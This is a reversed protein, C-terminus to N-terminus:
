LARARILKTKISAKVWRNKGQINRTCAEPPCVPLHFELLLVHSLAAPCAGPSKAPVPTYLGPAVPKTFNPSSTAPGINYLEQTASFM